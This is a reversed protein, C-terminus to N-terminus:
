YVTRCSLMWCEDARYDPLLFPYSPGVAELFDGAADEYTKIVQPSIIRSTPENLTSPEVEVPLLKLTLARLRNVLEAYLKVNQVRDVPTHSESNLTDPSARVSKCSLLSASEDAVDVTDESM